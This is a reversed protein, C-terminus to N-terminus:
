YITMWDRTKYNKNFYNKKLIKNEFNIIWLEYM